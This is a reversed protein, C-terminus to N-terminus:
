SNKQFESVIEPRTLKWNFWGFVLLFIANVSYYLGMIVPKMANASDALEPPISIMKMPDLLFVTGLTSLLGVTSLGLCFKRGWEVKKVLGVSALLILVMFSINALNVLQFNKLLWIMTPSMEGSAQLAKMIQDMQGVPVVSRFIIGEAVGTVIGLVSIAISFWGIKMLAKM